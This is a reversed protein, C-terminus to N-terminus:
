PSYLMGPRTTTSAKQPWPALGLWPLLRLKLFLMHAAVSLGLGAAMGAGYHLWPDVFGLKVLLIRIAGGTFVHLVYITMSIRGLWAFITALRGRMRKALAFTGVVGFIGVMPIAVSSYADTVGWLATGFVLLGAWSLLWWAGPQWRVMATSLLIGAAYFPVFHAASRLGSGPLAYSLAFAIMAAPLLLKRPVVLAFIQCLALAYLFWYQEVPKWAILLFDDPEVPNNVADGMALKTAIHGHVMLVIGRGRAVDLWQERPLPTVAAASPDAPAVMATM